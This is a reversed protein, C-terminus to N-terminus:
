SCCGCCGEGAKPYKVKIIFNKPGEEMFKAKLPLHAFNKQITEILEKSFDYDASFYNEDGENMKGILTLLLEQANEKTLCKTVLEDNCCSEGLM